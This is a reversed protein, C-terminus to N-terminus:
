GRLRMEIQGPELKEFAGGLHLAVAWVPVRRGDHTTFENGERKLVDGPLIDLRRKRARIPGKYRYATVM